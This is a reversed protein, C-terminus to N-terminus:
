DPCGLGIEKGNGIGIAFHCRMLSFMSIKFVSLKAGRTKEQIMEEEDTTAPQRM